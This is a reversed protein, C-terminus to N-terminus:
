SLVTRAMLKLHNQPAKFIDPSRRVRQKRRQCESCSTTARSDKSPQMSPAPAASDQTSATFCHHAPVPCTQGQAALATRGGGIFSQQEGGSVLCIERSVHCVLTTATDTDVKRRDANRWIEYRIMVLAAFPNATIKTPINVLPLFPTATRHINNSQLTV